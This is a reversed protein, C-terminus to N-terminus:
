GFALLAELDGPASYSSYESACLIYGTAANGTTGPPYPRGGLGGISSDLTRIDASLAAMFNVVRVGFTGRLQLFFTPITYAPHIPVYTDVKWQIRM